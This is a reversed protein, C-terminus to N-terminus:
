IVVGHKMRWIRKGPCLEGATDLQRLRRAVRGAHEMDWFWDEDEVSLGNGGMNRQRGATGRTSQHAVRGVLAEMEEDAALAADPRSRPSTVERGCNLPEQKGREEIERWRCWM